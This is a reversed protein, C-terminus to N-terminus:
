SDWFRGNIIYIQYREAEDAASLKESEVSLREVTPHLRTTLRSNFVKLGTM